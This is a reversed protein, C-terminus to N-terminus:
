HWTYYRSRYYFDHQSLDVKQNASRPSHHCTITPQEAWVGLNLVCFVYEIDHVIPPIGISSRTVPHQMLMWNNQPSLLTQSASLCHIMPKWLRRGHLQYLLLAALVVILTRNGDSEAYTVRYINDQIVRWSISQRLWLNWRLACMVLQAESSGTKGFTTDGGSRLTPNWQRIKGLFRAPLAM